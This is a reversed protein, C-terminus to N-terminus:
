KIAFSLEPLIFYNDIIGGYGKKKAKDIKRLILKYRIKDIIGM